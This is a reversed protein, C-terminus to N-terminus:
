NQRNTKESHKQTMLLMKKRKKNVNTQWTSAM